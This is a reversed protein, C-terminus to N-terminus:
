KRIAEFNIEVKVDDALLYGGQDLQANWSVGFEQRNLTTTTAFGARTNGWPDKAEGLFTVPLTLVKTVGRLTLQGTVDYTNDGTAKISTSKFAIEPFQDAAFFDKSRLHNDRKEIGTDISATKIAFAVSSAAPNALDRVIDASFDEFRGRVPSMLHRVVFSVESHAPDVAYKAIAPAAAEVAAAPTTVVFALAILAVTVLTSRLSPKM